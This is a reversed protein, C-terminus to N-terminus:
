LTSFSLLMFSIFPSSVVPILDNRIVEDIVANYYDIGKHNINNAFGQPM